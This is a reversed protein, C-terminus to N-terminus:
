AMRCLPDGELVAYADALLNHLRDLKKPPWGSIDIHRMSAIFYEAERRVDLLRGDRRRAIERQRLGAQRRHRKQQIGRSDVSTDYFLDSVALGL